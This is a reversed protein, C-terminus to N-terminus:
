ITGAATFLTQFITYLSAERGSQSAGWSALAIRRSSFMTSNSGCIWQEQTPVGTTTGTGTSGIQSGNKWNRNDTSGRCQVGIMGLGDAVAGTLSGASRNIISQQNNSANKFNLSTAPAVSANGLDYATQASDTLSWAWIAADNQTFKVGNISPTYQTRLRSSSGDGQWYGSGHTPLNVGIATFTGPNKWNLRSDAANESATGPIAGIPYLIDFDQWAEVAKLAGIATDWEHKLAKSYNGTLAALLAATEANSPVFLDNRVVAPSCVGLGLGLSPM